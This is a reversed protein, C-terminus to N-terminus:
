PALASDIHLRLGLAVDVQLQTTKNDLRYTFGFDAQPVLLLTMRFVPDEGFDVPVIRIPLGFSLGTGLAGWSASESSFTGRSIGGHLYAEFGVIKFTGRPISSWGFLAEYRTRDSDAGRMFLHDIRLGFSPGVSTSLHSHVLGEVRIGGWDPSENLLGREYLGAVGIACGSSCLGWLSIAATARLTAHRLWGERPSM